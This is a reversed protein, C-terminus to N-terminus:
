KEVIDRMVTRFTDALQAMNSISYYDSEGYEKRSAILPM